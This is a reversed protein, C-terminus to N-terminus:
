AGIKKIYEYIWAPALKCESLLLTKEEDSLSNRLTILIEDTINEKGLKKFYQIVLSSKESIKSITRSSTHKFNLKMGYIEYDRYPGDSLYEYCAPVQTSLHLVNLATDGSPVITWAFKKAIMNAVDPISAPVAKKLLKSYKPKLYIGDIIRIIEGSKEIRQLTKKVTDYSAYNVFDTICFLQGESYQSIETKIDESIM